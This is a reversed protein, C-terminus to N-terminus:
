SNALNKWEEYSYYKTLKYEAEYLASFLKGDISCNTPVMFGFASAEYISPTFFNSYIKNKYNKNRVLDVYHADKKIDEKLNRYENRVKERDIRLTKRDLYDGIEDMLLQVREIYEIMRIALEKDNMFKIEKQLM